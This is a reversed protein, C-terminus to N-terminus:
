ASRPRRARRAPRAASPGRSPTARRPTRPPARRRSSARGRPAAGCSAGRRATAAPSPRRGPARLLVVVPRPGDGAGQVPDPGAGALAVPGSVPCTGLVGPRRGRGRPPRRRRDRRRAAAALRARRGGPARLPEVENAIQRRTGASSAAGDAPRGARRRGARPRVDRHVAPHAPRARRRPSPRGRAVAAYVVEVRLYDESGELPEGLAPGRRGARAPRPRAVGQRRLLHEIRAVHLGSQEALLTGSTGCRPSARPASSRSTARHGLAPVKEDLARSAEDVADEAM